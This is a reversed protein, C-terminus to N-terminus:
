EETEGKEGATLLVVAAATEGSHTLSLFIRTIGREEALARLAGSLTIEPAGCPSWLTEIENLRVHNTDIGLAKVLAEKAAFRGACYAARGPRSSAERREGDTFVRTFFPDTWPLNMPAESQLDMGLGAIM